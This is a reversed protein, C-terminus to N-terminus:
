LINWKLYYERECALCNIICLHNVRKSYAVVVIAIMIIIDTYYYYFFDLRIFHFLHYGYKLQKINKM